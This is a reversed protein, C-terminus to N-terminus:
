TCAHPGIEELSLSFDTGVVHSNRNLLGEGDCFRGDVEVGERARCYLQGDRRYLVVEGSWSRCVVHSNWQPGLVCSEALLLVANASPQTRHQSVWELRATASLAHPQRFRLRVGAGLEIEDGDALVTPSHIERGEVCVRRLPEVFYGDARCIRAHQRSVDALIPVDVRNGPVAQGLVIEDGGCVLFGGVADVWLRFHTQGHSM